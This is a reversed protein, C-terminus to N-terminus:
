MSRPPGGALEGSRDVLAPADACRPAMEVTMPGLGVRDFHCLRQRPKEDGATVRAVGTPPDHTLHDDVGLGVRGPLFTGSPGDRQDGLVEDAARTVGPAGWERACLVDRGLAAGLLDGDVDILLDQEGVEPEVAPGGTRLAPPDGHRAGDFGARTFLDGAGDIAGEAVASVV